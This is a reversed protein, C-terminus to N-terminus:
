ARMGAFDLLDDVTLQRVDKEVVHDGINRRYTEAAWRDSEVAARLDFGARQLGLALGGAGSFVDIARPAQHKRLANGKRKEEASSAMSLSPSVLALPHM